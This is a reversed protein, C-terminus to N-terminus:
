RPARPTTAPAPPAWRGQRRPHPVEASLRGSPLPATCALSASSPSAPVPAHSPFSLHRPSGTPTSQRSALPTLQTTANGEGRCALPAYAAPPASGPLSPASGRAPQRPPPASRPPCWRRQPGSPTGHRAVPPPSPAPPAAMRAAVPHPHTRSRPRPPHPTGQPWRRPETPHRSPRPCYSRPCGHRAPARPHPLFRTASGRSTVPRPM